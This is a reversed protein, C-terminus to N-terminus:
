NKIDSDIAQQIVTQITWIGWPYVLLQIIINPIQYDSIINQLNLIIVMIHGIISLLWIFLGLWFIILYIYTIAFIIRFGFSLSLFM